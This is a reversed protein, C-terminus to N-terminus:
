RQRPMTGCTGFLSSSTTTWLLGRIWWRQADCTRRTETFEVDSM